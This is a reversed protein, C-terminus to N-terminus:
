CSCFLFNENAFLFKLVITPNLKTYKNSEDSEVCLYCRNMKGMMGKKSMM